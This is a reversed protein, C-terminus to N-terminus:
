PFEEVLDMCKFIAKNSLSVFDKAKSSALSELTDRMSENPFEDSAREHVLLFVIETLEDVENKKGPTHILTLIDQLLEGLLQELHDFSIFLNNTLNVYFTTVSRRRENQKNMECFGDYDVDSDVYQINRYEERLQSLKMQFYDALWGYHSCLDVFLDAFISSYFRNTSCIDYLIKKVKDLDEESATECIAGVKHTIKDKLDLYTKNTLKNLFLRLENIDAEIGIKTEIKTAQFKDREWEEASSEVMKNGRVPKKKKEFHKSTMQPAGVKVCLDNIKVFIADPIDLQVGNAIDYIQRLSYKM